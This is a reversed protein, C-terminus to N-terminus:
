ERQPELVRRALEHSRKAGGREDAPDVHDQVEGWAEGGAEQESPSGTGASNRPPTVYMEEDPTTARVSSSRPHIPFRSVGM